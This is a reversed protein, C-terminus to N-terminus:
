AFREILKDITAQPVEQNKVIRVIRKPAPEGNSWDQRRLGEATGTSAIWSEIYRLEARTLDKFSNVTRTYGDGESLAQSALDLRAVRVLAMKVRHTKESNLYENVKKDIRDVVAIMEEHEPMAFEGAENRFDDLSKM